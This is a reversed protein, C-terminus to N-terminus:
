VGEYKQVSTLSVRLSTQGEDAGYSVENEGPEFILWTSGESRSNVISTKVGARLLTVSKEGQQTNITIVDGSQMTIGVGFYKGTTLNYFTPNQVGNALATFTIVAGTAVNGANFYTSTVANLESFAVGEAAISFPFEFLATTSDFYVETGSESLWYPKPCIISIQPQQLMGFLGNEFSDIYGDIYVDLHENKYRVRVPHKVRFYKYLNIRNDEIPPRINLRIVINREGIRASNFRTGDIGSVAVTNISAPAPNLGQVELVDYDPNNTLTLVEGFENEVSLEYM